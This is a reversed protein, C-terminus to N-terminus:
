YARSGSEGAQLLVVYAHFPAEWFFWPPALRPPASRDKPGQSSSMPAGGQPGWVPFSSSEMGSKVVLVFMSGM